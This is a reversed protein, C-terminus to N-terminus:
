AVGGLRRFQEILSASKVADKKGEEALQEEERLQEVKDGTKLTVDGTQVKNSLDEALVKDEKESGDKGETITAEKVVRPLFTKYGSELDSTAVNQLLMEMVERPRGALPKLVENFKIKRELAEKQKAGETIKQKTAALEESVQRLQAEVSDEDVFRKTWVQAFAEYLERGFELKRVEEMDEKLEEFESTLRVELFSDLKDVLEGLDKQLQEALQQKYEVQKAAYEAELDRFDSIDKKLESIEEELYENIKTDIAEVLSDRETIWQETLQAKTETAAAEAAEKRAAEVAEDIQKKFAEELEKKVDESLVEKSLLSKLLEDM